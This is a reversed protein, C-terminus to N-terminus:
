RDESISNIRASVAKAGLVLAKFHWEADPEMLPQYDHSQGVPQNEKDFLQVSIKVGFRRQSGLNRVTGSAYVLSSGSPKELKIASIAFDNTREWSARLTEAGSLNTQAALATQNASVAPASKKKFSFVITLVITILLILATIVISVRRIENTKNTSVPATFETPQGCHPCPITEGDGDAPFELHGACHQCKGKVFNRNSM